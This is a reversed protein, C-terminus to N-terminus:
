QLKMSKSAGYSGVTAATYEGARPSGAGVAGLGWARSSTSVTRWSSSGLPMCCYDATRQMSATHSLSPPALVAQRSQGAVRVMAASKRPWEQAEYSMEHLTSIGCTYPTEVQPRCTRWSLKTIRRKATPKGPRTSRWAASTFWRIRAAQLPNEGAPKAWDPGKKGLTILTAGRWQTRTAQVSKGRRQNEVRKTPDGKAELKQQLHEYSERSSSRQQM